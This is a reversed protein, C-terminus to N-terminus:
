KGQGPKAAFYAERGEIVLTFDLGDTHAGPTVNLNSYKGEPKSPWSYQRAQADHPTQCELAAEKDRSSPVYPSTTYKGSADTIGRCMALQAILNNDEPVMRSIIVSIGPVPQGKEDRVTGSFTAGQALTIVFPQPPASVDKMEVVAAFKKEIDYARYEGPGSMKISMLNFGFSGDPSSHCNDMEIEDRPVDPYVEVTALAVPRGDPYVVKGTVWPYSYPLGAKTLRRVAKIEIPEPDADDTVDVTVKDTELSGDDTYSTIFYRGPSLGTVAFQGNADTVGGNKGITRSMSDRAGEAAYRINLESIPEKTVSDVVRGRIIHAQTVLIDVGTKTEGEAVFVVQEKNVGIYNAVVPNKNWQRLVSLAVQGAPVRLRYRGEADTRTSQPREGSSSGRVM